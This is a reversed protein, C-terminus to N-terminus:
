GVYRSSLGSVIPVGFLAVSSAAYLLLVAGAQVAAPAPSRLRRLRHLRRRGGPPVNPPGTARDREERLGGAPEQM